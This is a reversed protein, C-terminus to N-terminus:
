NNHFIAWHGQLIFHMETVDEGQEYIYRDRKDAKFVRPLFGFSIDYLLEDDAAENLFYAKFERTRM